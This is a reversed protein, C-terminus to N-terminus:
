CLMSLEPEFTTYLFAEQFKIYPVSIQEVITYALHRHYLFKDLISETVSIYLQYFQRSCPTYRADNHSGSNARTLELIDYNTRM